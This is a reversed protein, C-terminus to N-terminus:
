VLRRYIQIQSTEFVMAQRVRRRLESFTQDQAALEEFQELEQMSDFQAVIEVESALGTMADWVASEAEIGRKAQYELADEIAAL